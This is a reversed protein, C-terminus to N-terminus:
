VSRPPYKGALNQAYGKQMKNGNRVAQRTAAPLEEATSFYDYYGSAKSDPRYWPRKRMLLVEYPYIVSVALRNVKWYYGEPAQILGTDPDIVTPDLQFTM